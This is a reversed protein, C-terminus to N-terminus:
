RRFNRQSGRIRACFALGDRTHRCGGTKGPDERDAISVLLQARVRPLLEQLKYQMMETGFVAVGAPAHRGGM